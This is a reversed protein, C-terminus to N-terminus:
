LDLDSCKSIKLMVALYLFIVSFYKILMKQFCWFEPVFNFWVLNKGFDSIKSKLYNTGPLFFGWFKFDGISMLVVLRQYPEFLTLFIWAFVTSRLFAINAFNTNTTVQLYSADAWRVDESPCDIPILARASQKFDGNGGNVWVLTSLGGSVKQVTHRLATSREIRCATRVSDCQPQSAPGSLRKPFRTPGWREVVVGHRRLLM